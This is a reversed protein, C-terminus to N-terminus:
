QQSVGLTALLSAMRPDDRFEPSLALRQLISQAAVTVAASGTVSASALGSVFSFLDLKFERARKLVRDVLESMEDPALRGVGSLYASFATPAGAHEINSFLMEETEKALADGGAAFLQTLGLWRWVHVDPDTAAELARLHSEFAAREDATLSSTHLVLVMRIRKSAMWSLKQPDDPATALDNIWRLRVERAMRLLAYPNFRALAILALDPLASPGIWGLESPKDGKKRQLVEFPTLPQSAIEILQEEIATSSVARPRSQKNTESQPITFNMGLVDDMVALAYVVTALRHNFRDISFGFPNLVDSATGPPIEEPKALEEALGSLRTLNVLRESPEMEDLQACLWQFLRYTVWLGPAFQLSQRHCLDRVIKGCLRLIPAEAYAMGQVKPKHTQIASDDSAPASQTETEARVTQLMENLAIPLRDRLDVDAGAIQVRPRQAAAMRLFFTDGAIRGSTHSSANELRHLSAAVEDPYSDDEFRSALAIMPLLGPIEAAMRVLRAKDPRDRWIGDESSARAYLEDSPSRGTPLGGEPESLMRWLDRVTRPFAGEGFFSRTSWSAILTPDERVLRWPANVSIRAYERKLADDQPNKALAKLLDHIRGDHPGQLRALFAALRQVGTPKARLLVAEPPVAQLPTEPPVSEYIMTGSATLRGPDDAAIVALQELLAELSVPAAENTAALEALPRVKWNASLIAVADLEPQMLQSPAIEASLLLPACQVRSPGEPEFAEDLFLWSQRIARGYAARRSEGQRSFNWLHRWVQGSPADLSLLANGKQGAPVFAKYPESAICSIIFQFTQDLAVPGLEEARVLLTNALMEPPPEAPSRDRFALWIARAYRTTVALIALTSQVHRKEHAIWEMRDLLRKPESKDLGGFRRSLELIDQPRLADAFGLDVLRVLAAHLDSEPLISTLLAPLHRERDPDGRLREAVREFTSADPWQLQTVFDAHSGVPASLFSDASLLTLAPDDALAQRFAYANELAERFYPALAVGERLPPLDRIKPRVLTHDVWGEAVGTALARHTASALEAANVAQQLEKKRDRVMQVTSPGFVITGPVVEILAGLADVDFFIKLAVYGLVFREPLPGTLTPVPDDIPPIARCIAAYQSSDIKGIDCLHRAIVTAHTTKCESNAENDVFLLGHQAAYQADSISSYPQLSIKDSNELRELLDTERELAIRQTNLELNASSEVLGDWVDQFLVLKGDSGLAARLRGMLNLYQLLLAELEGVLLRSGLVPQPPEDLGVPPSLGALRHDRALAALAFVYQAAAINTLECLSEFPLQGHRYLLYAQEQHARRQQMDDILDKLPKAELLGAKFMTDFDVEDTLDLMTHLSLRCRLATPDLRFRRELVAAIRAIRERPVGELPASLRQYQACQHLMQPDLQEEHKQFIDWAESAAELRKGSTFLLRPIQFLVTLEDPAQDLYLRWIEISQAADVSDLAMARARLITRSTSEKLPELIEVAHAHHGAATLSQGLLLRYGRGPLSDYAAQAHPLAETGRAARMLLRAAFYELPARGPFRECLDLAILLATDFDRALARLHARQFDALWPHDTSEVLALAHDLKGAQALEQAQVYPPRDAEGMASIDDSPLQGARDDDQTLEYFLRATKAREAALAPERLNTLLWSVEEELRGIVFARELKPVWSPSQGEEFVSSGLAQIAMRASHLRVLSHAPNRSATNLALKCAKAYQEAELMRHVADLALIPSRPDDPGREGSRQEILEKAEALREEQEPSPATAQLLARARALDDLQALSEALLARGDITLASAQKDAIDQLMLKAETSQALCLMCGAMNARASAVIRKLDERDPDVSLSAQAENALTSFAEKAETYLGEDFLKGAQQQASKYHQTLQDAHALSRVFIPEKRKTFEIADALACIWTPVKAYDDVWIPRLRMATARTRSQITQKTLWFPGPFTDGFAARLEDVASQVDPDGYGYGIFLLSHPKQLLAQLRHKWASPGHQMRFFDETALVITGPASVDGHLKFVDGAGFRAIADVSDVYVLPPKSSRKSAIAEELLSDYNTTIFATGALKALAEHTASPHATTSGIIAAIHAAVGAEGLLTRLFSAKDLLDGNGDFWEDLRKLEEPAEGALKEERAKQYLLRILDTWNPLNSDVSAGAGVVVVLTGRAGAVALDSPVEPLHPTSTAPDNM